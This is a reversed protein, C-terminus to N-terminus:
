GGPPSAAGSRRRRLEGALLRYVVLTLALPAACLLATAWLGFGLYEGLTAMHGPHQGSLYRVADGLGSVNAFLFGVAPVLLLIALWDPHRRRGPYWIALLALAVVSPFLTGGATMAARLGPGLPESFEVHPEEGSFVTWVVRSPPVGAWQPAITHGFEHVIGYLVVGTVLGWGVVGVWQRWGWGRPTWDALVATWAKAQSRSLRSWALGFIMGALLSLAAVRRGWPALPHGAWGIAVDYRGRGGMPDLLLTRHAPLRLRYDGRSGGVLYGGPGMEPYAARFTGEEMEFRVRVPVEDASSSTSGLSVTVPEGDLSGRFRAFPLWGPLMEELPLLGVLGVVALIFLVITQALTRLSVRISELFAVEPIRDRSRDM